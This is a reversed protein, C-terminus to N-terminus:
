GPTSTKEAHQAAGKWRAKIAKKQNASSQNIKHQNKARTTVIM